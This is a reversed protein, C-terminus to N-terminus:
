DFLHMFKSKYQSVKSLKRNAIIGRNQINQYLQLYQKVTSDVTYDQKFHSYGHVVLHESLKKDSLLRIVAQSLGDVDDIPVLLGDTEHEVTARPGAAMTAVLPKKQAWAELIVLGFPEYRSPVMVIDCTAVFPRIDPQWGLFKVRDSVGVQAAFNEMGPREDGDGLIWLYADPIHPLAQIASDFGKHWHFRGACLIIPVNKPTDYQAKDVPQMTEDNAFPRIHHIRDAPWGQEVISSVVGSSIGILHDCRRYDNLHDYGRLWGIQLYKGSPAMRAAEYMWTQVIDPKFDNIIKKISNDTAKDFPGSFSLATVPVNKETLRAVRKNHHRIIAHQEIEDCQQLAAVTEIFHNEAGGAEQGAM